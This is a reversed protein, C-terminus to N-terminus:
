LSMISERRMHTKTLTQRFLSRRLFYNRLLLIELVLDSRQQLYRSPFLVDSVNEKPKSKDKPSSKMQWHNQFWFSILLKLKLRTGELLPNEKVEVRPKENREGSCFKGMWELFNLAFNAAKKNVKRSSICLSILCSSHKITLCPLGPGRASGLNTWGLM